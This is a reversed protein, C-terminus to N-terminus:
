MVTVFKSNYEAVSVSLEPQRIFKLLRERISDTAAMETLGAIKVQGVFPMSITGSDSVRYKGGLKDQNIIRIDLLDGEGIVYDSSAKSKEASPQTASYPEQAIAPRISFLLSSTILCLAIINKRAM